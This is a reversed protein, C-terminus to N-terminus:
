MLLGMGEQLATTIKAATEFIKALLVEKGEETYNMRIIPVAVMVDTGLGPAELPVIIDEIGPVKLSNTILFTKDSLSEIANMIDDQRDVALAAFAPDIGLLQERKPRPLRALLFRGSSVDWASFRSGTKIRISYLTSSEYSHLVFLHYGDLVSLHCDVGTEECFKVFPREAVDLLTKFQPHGNALDLIKFSLSLQNQGPHKILYGRRILCDVIRFLESPTKQLEESLQKLTVTRPYKSMFELIDLAKEVAPAHYKREQTDNAM